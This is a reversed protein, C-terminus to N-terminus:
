AQRYIPATQLVPLSISKRVSLTRRATAVPASLNLKTFNLWRGTTSIQASLRNLLTWMPRLLMRHLQVRNSLRESLDTMFTKATRLDRKGIRFAPVIKTEPDLAVFTWQDGVRSGDDQPTVQRQKKGVYSWIEDVQVRKCTLERMREDMLKACGTGVEVGLRMITDRHTDTMRETSRISNGEVLCNIIQTRRALSLRNM